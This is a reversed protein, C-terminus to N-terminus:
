NLPNKNGYSAQANIHIEHYSSGYKVRVGITHVSVSNQNSDSNRKQVLMGGPRLEWNMVNPSGGGSSKNAAPPSTTEIINKPKMPNM